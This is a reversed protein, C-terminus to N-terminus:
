VRVILKHSALEKELSEVKSELADARDILNNIAKIAEEARRESWDFAEQASLKPM